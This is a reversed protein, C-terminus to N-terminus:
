TAVSTFEEPVSLPYEFSAAAVIGQNHPPLTWLRKCMQQPMPRTTPSPEGLPLRFNKRACKDIRISNRLTQSQGLRDIIRIKTTIRNLINQPHTNQSTTIGETIRLQRGVHPITTTFGAKLVM